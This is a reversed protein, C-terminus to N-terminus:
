DKFSAILTKNAQVKQDLKVNLEMDLPLFMDVRSGFKIFGLEDGQIVETGTKCYTVIRRAVAGAIQRVMIQIDNKHRIVVSTRENEKSSKPIWAVWHKGREHEVFDVIGSLPFLNMHMNLPSMFISVQLRTERFYSNEEVEEIAVITGDAPSYISNKNKEVIREPKRFFHMIMLFFCLSLGSVVWSVWEEKKFFSYYTLNIILLSILLILLIRHGERHIKMKMVNGVFIPNKM